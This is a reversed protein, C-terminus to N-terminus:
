TGDGDCGVSIGSLLNGRPRFYAVDYYEMGSWILSGFVPAFEYRTEAVIVNEGANIAFNAPLTPTDGSGGIKSGIGAKSTCQWAIKPQQNTARTISSIVVAGPEFSFPRMIEGAGTFLDQLQDGTIGVPQRAVLDGIEVTVRTIKQYIILGRPVEFAGLALLVLFPLAAAFEVAAVGCRNRQLRHFGKRCSQMIAM